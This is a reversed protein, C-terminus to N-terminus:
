NNDRFLQQQFLDSFDDVFDPRGTVRHNVRATSATTIHARRSLGANGVGLCIDLELYEGGISLHGHLNRILDCRPKKVIIRADGIETVDHFYQVRVLESELSLM